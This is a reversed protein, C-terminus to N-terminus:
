SSMVAYSLIEVKLREAYVRDRDALLKQFFEM